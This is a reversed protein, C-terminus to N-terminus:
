AHVPPPSPLGDWTTGHLVRGALKKGARVMEVPRENNLEVTEGPLNLLNAPVWHGWQKFHFATKAMQCQRLLGSAWDPHMPRSNAGSEGGAIVWDIPHFGTRHFWTSLDLPGLLPECSLFRIRAPVSLLHPLRQDAIRQNEVSTGVWVNDPWQEEWPVMYSIYQPRKTLLLWDLYPTEKITEWLRAREDNLIARREFIDAMSACFVRERRNAIRAEENWKLPERWHADSFFRRDAAGGWLQQGMRKAWSEAYCNDCAPSVKKCGWWPNFTHHTWEIKSNSSM